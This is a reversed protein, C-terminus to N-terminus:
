IVYLEFSSINFCNLPKYQINESTQSLRPLTLPQLNIRSLSETEAEPAKDIKIEGTSRLNSATSIEHLGEPASRRTL